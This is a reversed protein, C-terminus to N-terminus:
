QYTDNVIGDIVVVADVVVAVGVVVVAVVASEENIDDNDTEVAGASILWLRGASRFFPRSVAM